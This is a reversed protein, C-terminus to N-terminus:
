NRIIKKDNNIKNIKKDARKPTAEEKGNKEADGKKESLGNWHEMMKRSNSCERSRNGRKRRPTQLAQFRRKETKQEKNELDFWEKRIQYAEVKM